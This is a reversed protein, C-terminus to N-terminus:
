CALYSLIQMSRPVSEATARGTGAKNLYLNLNQVGSMGRCATASNTFGECRPNVGHQQRIQFCMSAKQRPYELATIEDLISKILEM